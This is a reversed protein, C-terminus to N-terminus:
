HKRTKRKKHNRRRTGGLTGSFNIKSLDTPSTPQIAQKIVSGVDYGSIPATTTEKFNPPPEKGEPYFPYLKRTGPKDVLIIYCDKIKKLKEIYKNKEDDTMKVWKPSANILKNNKNYKRVPIYKYPDKKHFGVWYIDPDTVYGRKTENFSIPSVLKQVQISNAKTQADEASTAYIVRRINPNDLNLKYCGKDPATDRTVNIRFKELEKKNKQISQIVTSYNQLYENAKSVNASGNYIPIDDGLINFSCDTIYNDVPKASIVYPSSHDGFVFLLYETRYGDHPPAYMIFYRTTDFTHQKSKKCPYAYETYKVIDLPTYTNRNPTNEIFWSNTTLNNM